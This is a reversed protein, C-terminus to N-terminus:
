DSVASTMAATTTAVTTCKIELLAFMFCKMLLLLCYIYPNLWYQTLMVVDSISIEIHLNQQCGGPFSFAWWPLLWITPKPCSQLLEMALASSNSCDQMLGNIDYILHMCNMISHVFDLFVFFLDWDIENFQYSLFQSVAMRMKCCLLLKAVIIHHHWQDLVLFDHEM